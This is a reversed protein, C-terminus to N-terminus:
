WISYICDLAGSSPRFMTRFMYLQSPIINGSICDLAGSSPRFMTRFMYLQNPIINGSVTFVTLHEQHHAFVDGPVRLASLFLIVLYQLYLTFLKSLIYIHFTQLM